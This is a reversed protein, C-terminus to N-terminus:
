HFALDQARYRTDGYVNPKFADDGENNMEVHVLADSCGTKIFDKLTSARQTGSVSLVGLLSMKQNKTTAGIYPTLATTIIHLYTNQARLSPCILRSPPPHEM